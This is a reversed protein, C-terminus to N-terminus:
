LNKLRGILATGTVGVLVGTLAGSLILMPLYSLLGLTRVVLAAVLLQALNHAVGGVASISVPHLGTRKLLAMVLLSCLAGSLAYVMSFGSGFMLAGLAVRLASVTLADRWGFLYLCVLTVLNALGLKIGPVPMPLPILREVYSLVLALAIMMALRAIRKQM